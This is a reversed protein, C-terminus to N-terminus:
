SPMMQAVARYRARDCVSDTLTAVRSAWIMSDPITSTTQYDFFPSRKSGVSKRSGDSFLFHGPKGLISNHSRIGMRSEPVCDATLAFHASRYASNQRLVTM